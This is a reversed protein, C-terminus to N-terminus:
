ASIRREVSLFRDNESANEETSRCDETLHSRDALAGAWRELGADAFDTLRV